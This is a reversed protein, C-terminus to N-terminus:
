IKHSIVYFCFWFGLGLFFSMLIFFNNTLKDESEELKIIKNKLNDIALLDLEAHKRLTNIELDKEPIKSVETALVRFDHLLEKNETKVREFDILLQGYDIFLSDYQRQQLEEDKTLLGVGCPVFIKRDPNKSVREVFDSLSEKILKEKEKEQNPITVFDQAFSKFDNRHNEDLFSKDKSNKM